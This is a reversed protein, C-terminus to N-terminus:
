LLLSMYLLIIKQDLDFVCLFYVKVYCSIRSIMSDHDYRESVIACFINEISFVGTCCPLFAGGLYPAYNLSFKILQVRGCFEM